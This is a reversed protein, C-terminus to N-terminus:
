DFWCEGNVYFRAFDPSQFYIVDEGDESKYIEFYDPKMEPPAYKTSGSVKPERISNLIEHTTKSTDPANHYAYDCYPYDGSILMDQNFPRNFPKIESFDGLYGMPDDITPILNGTPIPTERQENPTKEPSSTEKWASQSELSFITAHTNYSDVIFDSSNRTPEVQDQTLRYTTAAAQNSAQKSAM